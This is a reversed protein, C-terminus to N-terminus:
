WSRGEVETAERVLMNEKSVGDHCVDRRAAACCRLPRRADKPRLRVALSTTGRRYRVSAKVARSSVCSVSSPIVWTTETMSFAGFNGCVRDRRVSCIGSDSLESWSMRACKGTVVDNM